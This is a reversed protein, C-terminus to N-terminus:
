LVNASFHQSPSRNLLVTVMSTDKKKFETKASTRKKHENLPLPGRKKHHIDPLGLFCTMYENHRDRKRVLLHRLDMIGALYGNFIGEQCYISLTEVAFVLQITCHLSIIV